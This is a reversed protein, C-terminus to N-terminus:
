GGVIREWVAATAAGAGPTGIRQGNRGGRAFTATVAAPAVAPDVPAPLWVCSRVHVLDVAAAEASGDYWWPGDLRGLWLLGDGDRTWVFTGEPLAVFRELRRATREGWRADVASLAEAPSSPVRELRGGMGVLGRTLGREAGAGDPVADDRSRMPARYALPEAVVETGSAAPPEKM